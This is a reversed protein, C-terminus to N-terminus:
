TINMVKNLEERLEHGRFPKELRGKFGYSQYNAMVPDTSYGSSVIVQASDDLELVKAVAQKGGMGGPITLDMIIIDYPTNNSKSQIFKEIASEGDIAIDVTCGFAELMDKTLESVMDDDDMVLIHGGIVMPGHKSKVQPVKTEIVIAPEAPLYVKFITGINEISDVKIYGQHKTIISHSTALGLGSESGKTSFYPDFVKALDAQKIGCGEDRLILEVYQQDIKQINKATIFLNGIHEMAQSANLVLSAMVQAIQGKDAKIPWLDEAIDYHAKIGSGALNFKIAEHIVQKFNIISLHPEGGKSFTLLQSTLSTARDLEKYATKLYRCTPNNEDMLNIALEINGFLGTLINNFDHAIGGALVGISKLNRIKFLEEELLFYETIDRFILVVGLIKARDDIIPAASDSIHYESGDKAILISQNATAVIKYTTIVQEVPSEVRERTQSDIIHFVETLKRGYAQDWIWGTLKQAVPNIQTIFGKTDTAIVADGISNLITQLNKRSDRLARAAVQRSSIDRVLALLFTEGRIKILSASVEVPILDGNKTLCSLEDTKGKGQTLISHSFQKFKNIDHPHVESISLGSLEESSYGLMKETMKNFDVIKETSLDLLLIADNSQDYIAQLRAENEVIRNESEKRETIDMATSIMVKRGDPLAGLPSSFFDWIRTEGTKTRIAFEGDHGVSSRKFLKNIFENMPAKNLGYAKATWKELTSIEDLKYGTIKSWVQNILIVEGDEAHLMTPAPALSLSLRFQEESQRLASEAAIREQVELKLQKNVLKIEQLRKQSSQALYLAFSITISLFIGTFLLAQNIMALEAALATTYLFDPLHSELAQWLSVTITLMGLGFSFPLWAPFHNAKIRLKDLEQSWALGAMSTSLIIFGVSTHLAMKTLQGWGYAEKFQFVYGTLAALSLGFVLSAIVGLTMSSAKSGKGTALFLMAFGTLSFCLATNPAMRGPHSTEITIYNRIFLQDINLNLNFIYQVITLTGLLCVLSGFGFLWQYKKIRFLLIGTGSLLFDFATNYQMPAFSPYVQILTEAHTYWGILVTLGLLASISATIGISIELIKKM